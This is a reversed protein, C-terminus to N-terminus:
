LFSSFAVTLNLDLLLLIYINKRLSVNEELIDYMKCSANLVEASKSDVVMIKWKGPPQVAKIADMLGIISVFHNTDNNHASCAYYNKRKRTIEVLRTM